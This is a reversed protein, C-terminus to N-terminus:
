EEKPKGAAEINEVIATVLRYQNASFRVNPDLMVEKVLDYESEELELLTDEVTLKDIKRQIRNLIRGQLLPLGQPYKGGIAQNFLVEFPVAFGIKKIQEQEEPAAKVLAFDFALNLTKM